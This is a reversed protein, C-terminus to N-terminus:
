LSATVIQYELIGSIKLTACDTAELCAMTATTLFNLKMETSLFNLNMEM